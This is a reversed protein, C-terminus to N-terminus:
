KNLGMWLNLELAVGFTPYFKLSKVNNIGLESVILTGANIRILNFIKFGLTTYVPLNIAPTTYKIGNADEIAKTLIGISLGFSNISHDKIKFGRKFPLTLGLGPTISTNSVKLNNVNASTNWVYLGANIPLTVRDKETEIAIIKFYKVQQVLESNLFPNVETMVLDALYNIKENLLNQSVDMKSASKSKKFFSKLKVEKLKYIEDEVLRSLGEFQIGNLSRQYLIADKILEDLRQVIKRPENIKINNGDVDIQNKLYFVVRKILEDKLVQKQNGSMKQFTTISVDYSSNPKLPNSVFIEFDNSLNDAARDWLYTNLFQANGENSLSIEVLDIKNPIRGEIIFAKGFPLQTANQFSRNEFDIKIIENQAIIQNNFIGLLLLLIFKIKM